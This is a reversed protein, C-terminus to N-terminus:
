KAMRPSRRTRPRPPKSIRKRGRSDAALRDRSRPLPPPHRRPNAVRPVRNNRSTERGGTKPSSPNSIRTTRARKKTTRRIKPIAGKAKILRLRRLPRPHDRAQPSQNQKQDEGEKRDNKDGANKQQDKNQQDSGDGQQGKQDQPKNQDKQDKSDKKEKSDKQGNGGGQSQESKSQDKNEKNNKQDKQDKQDKNQNKQQQQQKKLDEILKKVIERNEKASANMPDAKIVTEYHQLANKWDSLKADNEKAAEGSRVLANALNYTAAERIGPKPSTM